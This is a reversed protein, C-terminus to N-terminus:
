HTFRRQASRILLAGGVILAVAMGAILLVPLGTLPLKPQYM